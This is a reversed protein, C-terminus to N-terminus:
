GALRSALDEGKVRVARDDGPARGVNVLLAFDDLREQKILLMERFARFKKLVHERLSERSFHDDTRQLRNRLDDALVAHFAYVQQLNVHLLTLPFNEGAAGVFVPALDSLEDDLHM